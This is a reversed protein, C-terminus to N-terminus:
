KQSKIIKFDDNKNPKIQRLLQFVAPQQCFFSYCGPVTLFFPIFQPM